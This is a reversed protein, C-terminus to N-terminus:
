GIKSVGASFGAGASITVTGGATNNSQSVTINAGGALILNPGTVGVTGATNGGTGVGASFGGGAGGSITVANAIQSLTINAGGALFLTGTSIFATTGSINGGVQATLFPLAPTLQSIALSFNTGPRAIPIADTPQAPAGSPLQLIKENAM